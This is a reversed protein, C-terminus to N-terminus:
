PIAVDVDRETHADQRVDGDVIMAGGGLIGLPQDPLWQPVVTVWTLIGARDARLLAATGPYGISFVHGAMVPDLAPRAM